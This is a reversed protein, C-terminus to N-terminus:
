VRGVRLSLPFRLPRPMTPDGWAAALDRRFREIPERGLAKEAAKVASWTDVYGTFAELTWAAGIALPPAVFEAFRFISRATARRSMGASRRGTRASWRGVSISSWPMSRSM